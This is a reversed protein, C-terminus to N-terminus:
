GRCEGVVKRMRELTVDLPDNSTDIPEADDAKKLPDIPRTEDQHDRLAIQEAIKALDADARDKVLQDYRRKARVEVSATFFFKVAADPFVATGQDRGECIMNRGAAIRRQEAKLRERVPPFTGVKSAAAGAGPSTLRETYDVGNLMTKGGAMDFTYDAVLEAIRALDPPDAYINVGADQLALGAARYMAGTNLLEFGLADALGRAASSKGSGAYGDITIIM